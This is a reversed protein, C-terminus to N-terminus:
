HTLSTGIEELVDLLYDVDKRTRRHNILCVRLVTKGGIRTGTLFIRGDQEVANILRDNLEDLKKESEMGPNFRFCVISLPAPAMLDFSDSAQIKDVLYAALDIDQRIAEEITRSGYTKLTMWVKLAKFDKTLPLNYEMLDTREEDSEGSQLYDPVLSFTRRQNEPRRVLLAAVEFPVYLWKHPNVVVSDALEIGRFLDRCSDLRAAPGGYAADVHYWLDYKRCIEGIAELDDIAGTNTTGAIGVACIPHAGSKKDQRIEMELQETNVQYQDNVPIKKLNKRGLGLIDMAKDFSSHGESSVYVTMPPANQLGEESIEVPSKIKRAVALAEFNAVSGGGLLTGSCDTSYGIWEALWRVVLKELETSVPSSHWKLNNQNLAAKIMEALIGVQNGGGTIYGYYNPGINLTSTAVVDREVKGLVAGLETGDPPLTEDFRQSVEAPSLGPFVNRHGARRYLKDIISSLYDVHEKFKDPSLDLTMYESGVLDLNLNVNKV